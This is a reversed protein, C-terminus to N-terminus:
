KLSKFIKLLEDGLKKYHTTRDADAYAVYAVYGAYGASSVYDADAYADSAVYGAYGAYGDSAASAVYAVYGAYGASSVYAAYGASGDSAAAAYYAAYGAYGASAASASAADKALAFKHHDACGSRYLLIVENVADACDKYESNDFTKLVDELIFILFPAKAKDLDVGVPIAELFQLPFLKADENDLSEFIRDELYALWEPIGLETQYAKHNSSHITCGVGCGKGDGWYTGKIIEDAEQHAKVRAVYKDKIAQDNHFSL